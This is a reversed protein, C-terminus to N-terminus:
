SISNQAFCSPHKVTAMRHTILGSKVAAAGYFLRSTASFQANCSETGSPHKGKSPNFHRFYPIHFLQIRMSLCHLFSFPYSTSEFLVILTRTVRSIAKEKKKKKEVIINGAKLCRVQWYIFQKSFWLIRNFHSTKFVNQGM